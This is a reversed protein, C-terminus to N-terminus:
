RQNFRIVDYAESTQPGSVSSTLVKQTISVFLVSYVNQSLPQHTFHVLKEQFVKTEMTEM